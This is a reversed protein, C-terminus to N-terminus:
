YGSAPSGDTALEFGGTGLDPQLSAAIGKKSYRPTAALLKARLENAGPPAAAGAEDLDPAGADLTPGAAAGSGM